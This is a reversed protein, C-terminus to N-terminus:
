PAPKRTSLIAGTTPDFALIRGDNTLVEFTAFNSDRQRYGDVRRIVRYHSKSFAVNDPSGAIDLTSYQKVLQGRFYFAIALHGAAARYGPAWPGFRVVSTGVQENPRGVNCQLYIEKSFWDFPHLLLDEGAQVSYVRTTGKTGYLENPVSKAYCRGWQDTKVIPVNSAEDDACVYACAMLVLGIRMCFRRVM